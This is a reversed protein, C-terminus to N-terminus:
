LSLEMAAAACAGGGTGGVEVGECRGEPVYGAEEAGPQEGLSFEGGGLAGHQAEGGRLWSHSDSRGRRTSSAVTTASGAVASGVTTATTDTSSRAMAVVSTCPTADCPLFCFFRLLASLRSSSVSGSQFIPLSRRKVCRGAADAPRLSM